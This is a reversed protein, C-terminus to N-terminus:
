TAPFFNERRRAKRAKRSESVRETPVVVEYIVDTMEETNVRKGINDIVKNEQGSLVQVVYWQDKAALAQPM